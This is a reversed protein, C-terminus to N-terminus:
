LRKLYPCPRLPYFNGSLLRQCFDCIQVATLRNALFDTRLCRWSLLISRCITFRRDQVYLWYVKICIFLDQAHWLDMAPISSLRYLLLINTLIYWLIKLCPWENHDHRTFDTFQYIVRPQYFVSLDRLLILSYVGRRDLSVFSYNKALSYVCWLCRSSRISESCFLRFNTILTTWGKQHSGYRCISLSSWM